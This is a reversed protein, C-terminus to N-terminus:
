LDGHISLRAMEANKMIANRKKLQQSHATSKKIKMPLVPKVRKQIAIAHVVKAADAIANQMALVDAVALRSIKKRLVTAIAPTTKKVDANAHQRALVDALAALLKGGKKLMLRPHVFFYAFYYFRSHYDQFTCLSNEKVNDQTWILCSQIPVDAANRPM